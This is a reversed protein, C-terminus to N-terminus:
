GCALRYNPVSVSRVSLRLPRPRDAGAALNRRHRGSRDPPRGHLALRPRWTHRIAPTAAAIREAYRVDDQEGMRADTYTVALLPAHEAALSTLTSSDIGGSLDASLRGTRAARRAVASTVTERVLASGDAFSLPRDPHPM